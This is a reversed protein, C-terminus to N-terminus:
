KLKLFVFKLYFNTFNSIPLTRVYVANIENNDLDTDIQLNFIYNGGLEKRIKALLTGLTRNESDTMVEDILQRIMDHDKVDDDQSLCTEYFQKAM